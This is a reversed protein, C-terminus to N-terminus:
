ELIDQADRDVIELYESLVERRKEKRGSFLVKRWELITRGHVLTALVKTKFAEIEDHEIRDMKAFNTDLRYRFRNTM